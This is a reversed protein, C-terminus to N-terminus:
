EFLSTVHVIDPELSGLFAERELEAAHRRWNNSSDLAAVPGAAAWIRINEQPVLADFLARMPEITEPFLGNLVVLFEHESGYRVMAQALALTYRGIGRHRSGCQAGQMDIAIRM